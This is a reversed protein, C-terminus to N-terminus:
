DIKRLYMYMGICVCVCVCVRKCVCCQKDEMGNAKPGTYM